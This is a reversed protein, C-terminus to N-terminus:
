LSARGTAIPSMSWQPPHPSERDMRWRLRAIDGVCALQCGTVGPSSSVTAQAHSTASRVDHLGYPPSMRVPLEGIDQM